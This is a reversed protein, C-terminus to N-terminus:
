IRQMSRTYQIIYAAKQGKCGCLRVTSIKHGGSLDRGEGDNEKRMGRDCMESSVGVAAFVKGLKGSNRDVSSKRDYGQSTCEYM